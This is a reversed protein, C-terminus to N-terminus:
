YSLIYKIKESVKKMNPLMAAELNSNLPIAPLNEAGMTYVPSDLYDFCNEQIKGTLSQAFSNEYSEETLVLCKGHKKVTNFILEEDIPVLTRLDLIEVKGKHEKAANKAWYVGMGYTIICLSKGSEINIVSDALHIMNSSITIDEDVDLNGGSLNLDGGTLEGKSSFKLTGSLTINDSLTLKGESGFFELTKTQPVSFGNTITLNKIGAPLWFKM